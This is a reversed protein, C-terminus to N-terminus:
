WGNFKVKATGFTVVNISTPQAVGIAYSVQVLVEDCLGAAVLNKPLTVPQMLQVEIWKSPDKGSFAGGGHAGKGGYTDV